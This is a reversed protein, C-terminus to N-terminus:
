EMVQRILFIAGMTLREPMFDFQNMSIRTIGRLCHELVREWLKMTHSMLKIGWYYTCSQIDGKNKYTLVLISRWENSM